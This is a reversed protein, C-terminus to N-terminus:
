TFNQFKSNLRLMTEILLHNSINKKKKQYKFHMPPVLYLKLMTCSAVHSSPNLQPLFMLSSSALTYLIEIMNSYQIM